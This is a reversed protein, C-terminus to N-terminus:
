EPAGERGGSACLVIAFMSVCSLGFAVALGGILSGTLGFGLLCGVAYSAGLLAFLMLSARIELTKPSMAM